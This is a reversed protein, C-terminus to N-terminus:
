RHSLCEQREGSIIRGSVSRTLLVEVTPVFLFLVKGNNLLVAMHQYRTTTMRGTKAFKCTTPDCLEASALATGTGSLGGATLVKENNLLTTAHLFRGTTM